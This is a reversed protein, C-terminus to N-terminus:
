AELILKTLLIEWKKRSIKIWSTNLSLIWIHKKKRYIKSFLFSFSVFIASFCMFNELSSIEFHEISVAIKLLLTVFIGISVFLIYFSFLFSSFCRTSFYLFIWNWNIVSLALNHWMSWHLRYFKLQFSLFHFISAFLTWHRIFFFTSVHPMYILPICLYSRPVNSSLSM